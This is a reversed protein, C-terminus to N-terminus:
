SRGDGFMGGLRACSTRWARGGMGTAGQELPDNNLKGEFKRTARLTIEDSVTGAAPLAGATQLTQRWEDIAGPELPATCSRPAADEGQLLMSSGEFHDASDDVGGQVHAYVTPLHSSLRRNLERRQEREKREPSFTM